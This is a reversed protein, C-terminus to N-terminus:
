TDRGLLRRHALIAAALEEYRDALTLHSERQWKSVAVQAAKREEHARREFHLHDPERDPEIRHM